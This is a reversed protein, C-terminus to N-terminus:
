HVQKFPSQKPGECRRDVLGPQLRNLVRCLFSGDKLGVFFDSDISEEAM